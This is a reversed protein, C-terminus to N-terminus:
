CNIEFDLCDICESESALQLKENWFFCFLHSYDSINIAFEFVENKRIVESQIEIVKLDSKMAFLKFENLGSTKKDRSNNNWILRFHGRQFMEMKLGDFGGLDGLDGCTLKIKSMDVIGESNFAHTNLKCFLNQGSMSNRRGEPNWYPRILELLNLSVFNSAAKFKGRQNVQGPTRPNKVKSPKSRLYAKGYRHSIIVPGVLGTLLKDKISAM